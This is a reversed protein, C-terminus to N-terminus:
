EVVGYMQDPGLAAPFQRRLARRAEDCLHCADAYGDAHPLDYARVLEAPGGALLPGTVPHSGPDYTKCIEALPTDFVNGVIIGQCIHLNGLPDVHVRGPEQLDEFPCATFQRWPHRTTVRDILKEAARGRFLVASEGEPLQGIRTAARAAEPEAISIVGIPIGLEDAATQANQVQRSLKESYHFLDSSLTLNQILGTFPSLWLRADEVDTAWYGNTVIGVQFGLESAARVSALTIPYYLCPEGGEFYIGTVTGTEKAQRLIVRVDRLTMTGSQWPSGWVFCHDCEFTCEYTLLLHLGTLKM